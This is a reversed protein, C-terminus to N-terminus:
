EFFFIKNVNNKRHEKSMLFYSSALMVATPVDIRTGKKHTIKGSENIKLAAFQDELDKYGIPFKFRNKEILKKMETYVRMKFERTHSYVPIMKVRYLNPYRPRGFQDLEKFTSECTNGPGNADFVFVDVELKEVLHELYKYQLTYDIKRWEDLGIIRYIGDLCKDLVAIAASDIKFAIDWGLVRKVYPKYFGTPGKIYRGRYVNTKNGFEDLETEFIKKEKM